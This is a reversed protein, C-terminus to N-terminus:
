PTPFPETTSRLPATPAGNREFGPAISPAPTAKVGLVGGQPASPWLAVAVLTIAILAAGADRVLQERTSRAAAAEVDGDVRTEALVTQEAVPTTPLGRTARELRIRYAEEPSPGPPVSEQGM